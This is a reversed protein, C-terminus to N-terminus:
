LDVKEMLRRVDDMFPEYQPDEKAKFCLHISVDVLAPLSKTARMNLFDRCIKLSNICTCEIYEHPGSVTLRRLLPWHSAHSLANENELMGIWLPLLIGASYHSLSLNETNPFIHRLVKAFPAGVTIHPGIRPLFTIDLASVSPIPRIATIFVWPYRWGADASTKDEFGLIVLQIEELNPTECSVLLHTLFYSSLGSLTLNRLRPIIAKPDSPLDSPQVIDMTGEEVVELTELREAQALIVWLQELPWKRFSASHLTIHRLQNIAPSPLTPRVHALSISWGEAPGKPLQIPRTSSGTDLPDWFDLSLYELAPLELTDLFANMKEWQSAKYLGIQLRLEGTRSAVHKLLALVGPLRQGGRVAMRIAVEIDLKQSGSRNLCAKALEFSGPNDTIEIRTWLGPSALAVQRVYSNSHTTRILDHYRRGLRGTKSTVLHRLIVVVIEPPLSSLSAPQVGQDSEM